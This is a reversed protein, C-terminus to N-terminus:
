GLLVFIDYIILYQPKTEELSIHKNELIFSIHNAKLILDSM